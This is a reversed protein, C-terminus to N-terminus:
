LDLEPLEEIKAARKKRPKSETAEDLIFSKAWQMVEDRDISEDEDISCIRRRKHKPKIPSREDFETELYVVPWDDDIRPARKTTGIYIIDDGPKSGIFIVDEDAVLEEHLDSEVAVAPRTPLKIAADKLMESFIERRLHINNIQRFRHLIRQDTSMKTPQDSTIELDRNKQKTLFSELAKM